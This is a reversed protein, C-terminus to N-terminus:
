LWGLCNSKGVTKNYKEADVNRLLKYSQLILHAKLLAFLFIAGLLCYWALETMFLMEPTFEINEKKAKINLFVNVSLTIAGGSIVFVANSLSDARQRIESWHDHNIEEPM